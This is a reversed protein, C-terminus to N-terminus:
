NVRFPLNATGAHYQGVTACTEQDLGLDALRELFMGYWTPPREQKQAWLFVRPGIARDCHSFIYDCTVVYPGAFKSSKVDADLYTVALQGNIGLVNWRPAWLAVDDIAALASGTLATMVVM